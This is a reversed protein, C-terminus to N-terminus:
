FWRSKYFFNYLGSEEFYQQSINVKVLYKNNSEPLIEYSNNNKLIEMISNIPNYLELNNQNMIKTWSSINNESQEFISENTIYTQKSTETAVGNKGSMVQRKFFVKDSKKDIKGEITIKNEVNIKKDQSNINTIKSYKGELAFSKLISNSDILSQKDLPLNNTCGLLIASMIAIILFQIRKIKM